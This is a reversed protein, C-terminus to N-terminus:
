NRQKWRNSCARVSNAAAVAALLCMIEGRGSALQFPHKEGKKVHSVGGMAGFTMGTIRACEGRGRAAPMSEDKESSIGYLM